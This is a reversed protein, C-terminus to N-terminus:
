VTRRYDSSVERRRLSRGPAASSPAPSPLYLGEVPEAPALLVSLQLKANRGYCHGAIVIPGDVSDLVSRLFEADSHLGRLPNALGIVPYDDERLHAIVGNWSSSDAFAGHVLVVTPKTADTLTMATSISM